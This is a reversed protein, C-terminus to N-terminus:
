GGRTSLGGALVLVKAEKLSLFQKSLGTFWGNWYKSSSALDTKWVLTGDELQKLQSPISVEAAEINHVTGSRLAWDVADKHSRFRSPRRALISGMHKLSAMATGEVVDIVMVGVLSPVKGTAAIRVGLAGGLSHGVIITQSNELDANGDEELAMPPILLEMVQLTDVVLTDISLDVDVSTHTQGHGRLDFAYVRCTEKLMAEVMSCFWMRVKLADGNPLAVDENSDFYKAWAGDYSIDSSTAM